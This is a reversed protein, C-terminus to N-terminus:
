TREKGQYRYYQFCNTPEESESEFNDKTDNLHMQASTVVTIAVSGYQTAENLM